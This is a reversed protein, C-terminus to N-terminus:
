PASTTSYHWVGRFPSLMTSHVEREMVTTRYQHQDTKQQVEASFIM